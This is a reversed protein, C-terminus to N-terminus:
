LLRREAYAPTEPPRALENEAEGGADCSPDDRARREKLGAASFCMSKCARLAIRSYRCLFDWRKPFHERARFVSQSEPV